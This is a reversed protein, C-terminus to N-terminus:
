SRHNWEPEVQAWEDEWSREVRRNLAQGAWAHGGVLLTACGAFAAMAYAVATGASQAAGPPAAQPVDNRDVWLVVHDGPRTTAPVPDQVVHKGSADTWDLTAIRAGAGGPLPQAVAEATVRHLREAHRVVSARDAAYFHLGLLVCLAATVALSVVLLARLWGRLFDSRRRLPNRTGLGPGPPHPEFSPTAM